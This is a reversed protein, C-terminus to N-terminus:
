RPAERPSPPDDKWSFRPAKARDFGALHTRESDPRNEPRVYRWPNDGFVEAILAALAPDYAQLEERTDVDNHQADSARNTDYWSQVGEAFYESRNTAAYTDKWLGKAQAAQFAERLRADFTPDIRRMGMEHVAHAFEHILINETSYPDGPFGLLNEEACSVAPRQRTAGLGRARRNWYAAPKLDSHEPVDVTREDYAMVALRVREKAMAELIEPRDGLMQNVLYAAEFLAQDSVKASGLIPFGKLDVHKVYFPDLKWDAPPETRKPSFPAPATLLLALGALLGLITVRTM